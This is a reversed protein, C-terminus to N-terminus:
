SEIYWDPVGCSKMEEVYQPWKEVKGAAVKGKRVGEM